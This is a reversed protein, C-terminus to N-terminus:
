PHPPNPLALPSATHNSFVFERLLKNRRARWEHIRMKVIDRIDDDRFESPSFYLEVILCIKLEKDSHNERSLRRILLHIADSWWEECEDSLRTIDESQTSFHDLWMDLIHIEIPIFSSIDMLSTHDEGLFIITDDRIIEIEDLCQWPYSHLRRLDDERDEIITGIDPDISM